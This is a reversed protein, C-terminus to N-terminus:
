VRTGLHLGARWLHEKEGKRAVRSNEEKQLPFSPCSCWRLHCPTPTHPPVAGYRYEEFFDDDDIDDVHERVEEYSADKQRLDDKLKESKSMLKRSYDIEEDREEEELEPLNGLKRQIEDWETGRDPPAARQLYM